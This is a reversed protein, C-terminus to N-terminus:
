LLGDILTGDPLVRLEARQQARVGSLELMTAGVMAPTIPQTLPENGHPDSEGIARGPRVGGGAWLSSYCQHWHDRGGNGSIKPTRGFEGMTVVLTSDLLGREHLDDLLASLARDLIPGHRDTLHEFNLWHTDWGFDTRTDYTGM